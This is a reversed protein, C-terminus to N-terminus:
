KSSGGAEDVLLDHLASEATLKCPGTYVAMCKKMKKDGKNSTQSSDAGLWKLKVDTALQTTSKGCSNNALRALRQRESVRRQPTPAVTGYRRQM